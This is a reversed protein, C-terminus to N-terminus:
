FTLRAALQINRPNTVVGTWAGFAPSAVDNNFAQQALGTNPVGVSNFHHWNWTNFSEARIHLAFRETLSIVKELAIDHDDYAPQRFGDV